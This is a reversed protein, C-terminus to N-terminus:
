RSMGSFPESNRLQKALRQTEPSLNKFGPDDFIGCLLKFMASADIPDAQGTLLDYEKQVLKMYVQIPFGQGPDTHSGRKLGRTINWHSTIGRKKAAVDEPALWVIPISYKLALEAVLKASRKLMAWSYEDQWEEATQRAYGAHEIHLGNHNAGPAGYAVDGEKVCQVISDSDACYHASAKATGGAFYAACNEATKGKEPAEMSHLVIQDIQRGSAAKYHKAQVFQYNTM